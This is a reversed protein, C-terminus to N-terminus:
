LNSRKFIWKIRPKNIGKIKTHIVDEYCTAEAPFLNISPDVKKPIIENPPTPEKPSEEINPVVVAENNQKKSFIKKRFIVGLIILVVIVPIIIWVIM